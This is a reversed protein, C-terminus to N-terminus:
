AHLNTNMIPMSSHASMTPANGQLKTSLSVGSPGSDGIGAPMGLNSGIGKYGM